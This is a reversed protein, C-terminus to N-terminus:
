QMSKIIQFVKIERIKLNGSHDDLRLECVDFMKLAIQARNCESNIKADQICYLKPFKYSHSYKPMRFAFHSLFSIPSPWIKANQICFPEPFKYHTVMNLPVRFAFPNLSSFLSHGFKPVRFAFHNMSKYHIAM